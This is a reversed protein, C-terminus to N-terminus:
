DTDCRCSSALCDFNYAKALFLCSLYLLCYFLLLISIFLFLLYYDTIYISDIYYLIICYLLVVNDNATVIITPVDFIQTPDLNVVLFCYLHCYLLNYLVLVGSCWSCHHRHCIPVFFIVMHYMILRPYLLFYHQLVM